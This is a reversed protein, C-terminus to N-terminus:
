MPLQQKKAGAKPQPLIEGMAGREWPRDVVLDPHERRFTEAIHCNWCVPWSTAFAKPLKEPPLENWLRTKGDPGLLAPPHDHWQLAAFPMKCFACSQGKYFRSVTSWVLCGEPDAQIQSLCDQGCDQREPWRTCDKLHIETRGWLARRAADGAAVEVAVPERTEPCTVIRKGRYRLWSRLFRVWEYGLFGLLLVLALVLLSNMFLM